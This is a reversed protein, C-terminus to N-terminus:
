SQIPDVSNNDLTSNTRLIEDLTRRLYVTRLSRGLSALEVVKDRRAIMSQSGAQRRSGAVMQEYFQGEREAFNKYMRLHRPEAGHEMFGAVLSAIVLADADFLGESGMQGAPKILGCAEMEDVQEITLGSANAIEFRTLGNGEPEPILADGAADLEMQESRLRAQKIRQKSDQKPEKSKEAEAPGTKKKPSKRPQKKPPAQDEPKLEPDFSASAKLSGGSAFLEVESTKVFEDAVSDLLPSGDRDHENLRDKIVKLPLFNDQQQLLIWRLRELDSDYFKRYGSPTREPAILGQSELFRIKSITVDPFEASLHNLVDGISLHASDSAANM